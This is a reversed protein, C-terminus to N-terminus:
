LYSDSSIIRSTRISTRHEAVLNDKCNTKIPVPWRLSTLLWAGQFAIFIIWNLVLWHVARGAAFKLFSTNYHEQWFVCEFLTSCRSNDTSFCDETGLQGSVM